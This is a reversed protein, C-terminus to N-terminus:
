YILCGKSGSMDGYDYEKRNNQLKIKIEFNETLICEVNKVLEDQNDINMDIFEFNLNTKEIVDKYINSENLENNNFCVLYVKKDINCKDVIYKIIDDYHSKSHTYAYDIFLIFCDACNCINCGKEYTLIQILNIHIEKNNLATLTYEFEVHNEKIYSINNCSTASFFKQIITLPSYETNNTSFAGIRFISSSTM